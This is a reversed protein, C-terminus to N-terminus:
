RQDTGRYLATRLDELLDEAREQISELTPHGDDGREVEETIDYTARMRGMDSVDVMKKSDGVKVEMKAKDYEFRGETLEVVGGLGGREFVNRTLGRLSFTGGRPSKLILKATIEEEEHDSDAYLDFQDPPLNFKYFHLEKIPNDEVLRQITGEPVLHNFELLFDERGAEFREKIARGFNGVVGYVGQKELILVGEDKSNPLYVLFFFPRLEADTTQRHYALRNSQVDVLDAEYGFDGAALRGSLLRREEDVSFEAMQLLSEEKDNKSTREQLDTLIDRFVRFLDAGDAFHGLLERETSWKQRVRVTYPVLSIKPM